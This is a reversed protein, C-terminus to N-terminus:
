RGGWGVNLDISTVPSQEPANQQIVEEGDLYVKRAAQNFVLAIYHWRAFFDDTKVTHKKEHLQFNREGQPWRFNTEGEAYILEINEKQNTLYLQMGASRNISFFYYKQDYPHELMAPNPNFWLEFTGEETPLNDIGSYTSGIFYNMWATQENPRPIRDYLAAMGFLGEVYEPADCSYLPITSGCAWVPENSSEFPLYFLLEAAASKKELIEVAAVFGTGLVFFVILFFLSKIVNRKKRTM